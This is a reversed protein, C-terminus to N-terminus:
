VLVMGFVKHVIKIIKARGTVPSFAPTCRGIVLESLEWLGRCQWTVNKQSPAHPFSARGVSSFQVLALTEQFNAAAHFKLRALRSTGNVVMRLVAVHGGKTKSNTIWLHVWVWLLSILWCPHLFLPKMHRLDSKHDSYQSTPIRPRVWIFGSLM